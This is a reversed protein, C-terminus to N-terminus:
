RATGRLDGHVLARVTRVGTAELAVHELVHERMTALLGELTVHAGVLANLLAVEGLVENAFVLEVIIKDQVHGANTSESGSSQEM